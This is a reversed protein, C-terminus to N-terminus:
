HYNEMFRKTLNKLFNTIGKKTIHSHGTEKKYFDLFQQSLEIDVFVGEEEIQTKMLIKIM